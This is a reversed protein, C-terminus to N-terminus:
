RAEGAEGIIGFRRLKTYLAQRSLGLLEAASARNDGTLELAAEICLREIIDTTDRVIERLPMQGILGVMDNAPRMEPAAQGAQPLAGRESRRIVLGYHRGDETEFASGGIEIPVPMGHDPRMTTSLSRVTGQNDIANRLVRMEVGRHGIRDSQDQDIIQALDPAQVLDLYSQNATRVRMADDLVVMADPSACVLEGLLNEADRAQSAATAPLATGIQLSLRSQGLHRFFRVAVPAADGESARWRLMGQVTQGSSYAGAIMRDFDELSTKAFLTEVSMGKPNAAGLGNRAAANAEVLTRTAPDVVLHWAAGTEFLIRYQAEVTRLREAEHEYSLQASILRQQLDSVSRLDRGLAVCGRDRELPLITYSVPLDPAGPIAHNIERRTENQRDIDGLLRKAKLRSESTVIDVFPRDIWNRYVDPPCVDQRMAIDTVVGERDILLAFDATATVLSAILGPDLNAFSRDPNSFARGGEAFNVGM